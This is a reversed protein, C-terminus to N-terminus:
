LSKWKKVKAEVTGFNKKREETFDWWPKSGKGDMFYVAALYTDLVCPDHYAKTKDCILVYLDYPNKGKLQSPETIGLLNLDEVMAKGINPIEILSKADNATKAKKSAAM